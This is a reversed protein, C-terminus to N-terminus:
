KVPRMDRRRYRGREPEQGPADEVIRVALGLVELERVEDPAAEFADGRQLARGDHMQRSLARM